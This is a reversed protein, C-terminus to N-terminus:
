IDGDTTEEELEATRVTYSSYKEQVRQVEEWAFDKLEDEDLLLLDKTVWRKSPADNGFLELSFSIDTLWNSTEGLIGGHVILSFDTLKIEAVGTLRKM